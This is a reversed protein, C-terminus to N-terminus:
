KAQVKLPTIDVFKLLARDLLRVAVEERNRGFLGTKVLHDLMSLAQPSLALTLPKWPTSTSEKM